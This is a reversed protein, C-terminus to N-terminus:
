YLEAQTEIRKFALMDVNKLNNIEIENYLIYVLKKENIDEIILEIPKGDKKNVYLKKNYIYKNGNSTKTELIIKENEEYIKGNNAIYDSIFSELCLCNSALYNYNEYVSSLNLKTNNISLNSGDYTIELGQINSPELVVQKSINPVQYTQLLEYKNTNKNSEVTVSVKAEYSSLNLIYEEIEEISKINNNGTDFNKYDNKIFIIIFFIILIIVLVLFIIKKNIKQLM